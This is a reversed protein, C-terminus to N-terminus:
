QEDDFHERAERARRDLALSEHQRCRRLGMVAAVARELAEVEAPGVPRYASFWAGRESEFATADEGSLVPRTSSLGHTVANARCAAKGADTRPGTSYQSNGRNAEIQRQSTM